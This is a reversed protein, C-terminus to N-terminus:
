VVTLTGTMGAHYECEFTYEGAKEPTFDVTYVGGWQSKGATRVDLDSVAWNHQDNEVGYHPDYDFLTIRAPEGAKITLEAPYFEHEVRTQEPASINVILGPTYGEPFTSAVLGIKWSGQAVVRGVWEGAAPQEVRQVVKRWTTIAGSDYVLQGAPDEIKFTVDGEPKGQDAPDGFDIALQMWGTNEPVVFRMANTEKETLEDILETAPNSGAATPVLTQRASNPLSTSLPATPVVFDDDTSDSAPGACGAALLSLAVVVPFRMFRNM